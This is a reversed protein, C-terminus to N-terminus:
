AIPIQLQGRFHAEWTIQVKCDGMLQTQKSSACPKRCCTEREVIGCLMDFAFKEVPM